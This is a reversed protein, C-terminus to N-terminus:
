RLVVIKSPEYVDCFYKTVTHSIISVFSSSSFIAAVFPLLFAFLARLRAPLPELFLALLPVLFLAALAFDRRTAALFDVLFDALAPDFAPPALFVVFFAVFFDDPRFAGALFAAVVLFAAFLLWAVVLLAVLLLVVGVCHDVGAGTVM